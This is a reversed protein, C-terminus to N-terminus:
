CKEIDKFNEIAINNNINMESNNNNNNNNNNINNQNNNIKKIYNKHPTAHNIERNPTTLFKWKKSINPATFWFYVISIPLQIISIMALFWGFTIGWWPYEYTGNYKISKYTALYFAFTGGIVGPTIYKWCYHFFKSIRFGIMHEINDFLHESKYIWGIVIAEFFCYWLLCMGSAGYYDFLQFVYMGGICVALIFWERRKGVRLYQPFLDVMATIFGEVGVFQSGMGLLLIMAFFMVAWFSAGPMMAVARPYAIFALGPGSEAVDAISLGQEHAMYGLISFIVFGSYVSTGSNAGTLFLLQHYFNNNYSNYSGLGVMCGLAIAYSFFIQTGADIWVQSDKLREFEPYIYFRIGKMAGPLTIGRIFLATIVLYPFIATVYVAKGTSKVGKWICFFCMIWALLLTLVLEWQFGNPQDIGPSIQLIKHEWFEIVSNVSDNNPTVNLSQTWCNETNWPNDCRSWLLDGRLSYYFYLLAWAIVIIYYSNLIFSITITGYGIGRFLPCIENWVTLGGHRFYQGISVELFLIPAAGFILFIFYPIFFAGGGNKYCLYPFRWVNGLGIAYAMCAFVFELKNAWQERERYKKPKKGSSIIQQSQVDKNMSTSSATSSPLASPTGASLSNIDLSDNM